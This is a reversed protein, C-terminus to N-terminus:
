GSRADLRGCPTVTIALEDLGRDVDEAVIGVRAAKQLVESYNLASITCDDSAAARAVAQWGHEQNMPALLASADLVIM